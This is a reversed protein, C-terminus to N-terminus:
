QCLRKRTLSSLDKKGGTAKLEKMPGLKLSALNKLGALDVMRNGSIPLESLDLAALRSLGSLYKLGHRGMQPCGLHLETLRTLGALNSLGESKLELGSLSLVKLNKLCAIGSLGADTTRSSTLATLNPFINTIRGAVSESDLECRLEQISTGVAACWHKNVLRMHKLTKKSMPEDAKTLHVIVSMADHPLDGWSVVIGDGSCKKPESEVPSSSSVKHFAVSTTQFTVNRKRCRRPTELIKLEAKFQFNFSGEKSTTCVESFNFAHKQEFAAPGGFFTFTTEAM